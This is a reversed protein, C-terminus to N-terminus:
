LRRRGGGAAFAHRRLVMRAVCVVRRNQLNQEQPSFHLKQLLLPGHRPSVLFPCFQAMCHRATNRGMGHRAMGRPVGDPLIGHWAAGDWTLCQWAMGHREMDHWATGDRATGDMDHM